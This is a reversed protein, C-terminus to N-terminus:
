QQYPTDLHSLYGFQIPQNPKSEKSELFSALWIATTAAHLCFSHLYYSWYSMFAAPIEPIFFPYIQSVSSILKCPFTLVLFYSVQTSSYISKVPAVV